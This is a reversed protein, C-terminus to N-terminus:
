PAPRASARTTRCFVALAALGTVLLGAAVLFIARYSGTLDYLVGSLMPGAAAGLSNGISLYGFILGYQARPAVRGVLVSVITARSGLPLFVFFVYGYALLPIPWAEMGVLCLVGVLSLSYSVFGATPGGWRDAVLGALARGGVSLVGGVALLLSAEAPGFGRATLYLTHQITALYGILPPLSFVIALAVFSTSFVIARASRDGMGAGAALSPAASTLRRPYVRLACPVLAASGVVYCALAGRWGLHTIAWQAPWALVYGAMSGSFAIGTALGRRAVFQDAILAAQTVMGTLGIGIGGGIGVAAVFVTLSPALAGVGLGLAVAVLGFVVTLRPNWRTVLWGALPGLVAGGIWLLTVTSATAARSGEFEELLSPFFVPFTNAIGSVFLMTVFALALRPSALSETM